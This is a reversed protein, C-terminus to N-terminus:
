TTKPPVEVVEITAKPLKAPDTRSKYYANFVGIGLYIWFASGMHGEDITNTLVEILLPIFGIIQTRFGNLPIKDFFLKDFLTFLTKNMM